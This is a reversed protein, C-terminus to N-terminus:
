GTVAAGAAAGAAGSADEALGRVLFVIFLLLGPEVATNEDLRVRVPRGGWGKGELVALENDGLTLAYRERWQSAPRLALERGAWSLKGGRRLARPEFHGVTTGSAERAEIERSWPRRRAIQWRQGGAAAVASRSAIGGFRLTGVGALAFLRREGPVRTLELDIM